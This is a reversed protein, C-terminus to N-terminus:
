SIVRVAKCRQRRRGVARKGYAFKRKDRLYIEASVRLVGVKQLPEGGRNAERQRNSRGRHSGAFVASGQPQSGILPQDNARITLPTGDLLFQSITEVAGEARDRIHGGVSGQKLDSAGFRTCAKGM